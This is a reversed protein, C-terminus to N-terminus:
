ENLDLEVIRIKIKKNILHLENELREREALMGDLSFTWAYKDIVDVQKTSVQGTDQNCSGGEPKEPMYRFWASKTTVEQEVQNKLEEQRKHLHVKRSNEAVRKRGKPTQTWHPKKRPRPM